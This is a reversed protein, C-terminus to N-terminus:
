RPGTVQVQEALLVDGAGVEGWARIPAGPTLRDVGIREGSVGVVATGETLQVQAISGIRLALTISMSAEDFTGVAADVSFSSRPVFIPPLTPALTPTAPQRTVPPAATAAPAESRDGGGCATVSCSIVWVAVLRLM